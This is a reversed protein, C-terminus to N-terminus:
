YVIPGNYKIQPHLKETMKIGRKFVNNPSERGLTLQEINNYSQFFYVNLLKHLALPKFANFNECNCVETVQRLEKPIPQLRHVINYKNLFLKLYDGKSGCGHDTVIEYPLRSLRKLCETLVRIDSKQSPIGNNICFALVKISFADIMVTLWPKIVCKDDPSKLKLAMKTHIIFAAEFPYSNKDRLM